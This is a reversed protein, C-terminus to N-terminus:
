ERGGTHILLKYPTNALLTGNAQIDLATDSSSGVFFKNIDTATEKNRASFVSVTPGIPYADPFTLIAIRTDAAPASGTTFEFIYFNNGGSLLNIAPGTGASAGFTCLSNNWLNGTNLFHRARVEGNVDLEEVPVDKNIGVLTVADNTLIIGHDATGGPTSSNPTLKLKDGDSNDIGISSTLVGSVTLQFIPDGGAAGGSANQFISNSTGAATNANSMVALMNGSINGSMRMFETAGSIAGSNLNLFANNAGTGAVTGTITVRDNVADVTYAADNALTNADSWYAIRNAVGTGDVYGLLTQAAAANLSSLDGDADAGVLLTAPDTVLDTIRVEGQVHFDRQPSNTKIGVLGAITTGTGTLGTGFILNGIVLQNSGTTSPFNISTGVLINRSGATTTQASQYGVVINRDGTSSYLASQGISINGFGSVNSLLAESGIAINRYGDVNLQMAVNGIAVNEFGTTNGNLTFYGLSVNKDGTSTSPQSLGGVAVNNSATSLKLAETGLAFNNNGSVNTKLAETGIAVNGQGGAILRGAHYGIAVNNIGTSFSLLASNGIGINKTATGTINGAGAMFWQDSSPKGYLAKSSAVYYASPQDIAIDGIVDVKYAPATNNIGVNGDNRASIIDTGDAKEVILGYTGSTSGAGQIFAGGASQFRYATNLETASGVVVRDTTSTLYTYVGADTWYSSTNTLVGAIISLGSLSLLGLDGDADAGVIATPTDTTLDSIRAEGEVHLKRAPTTTGIGVLSTTINNQTTAYIARGLMMVNSTNSGPDVAYGLFINDSGTNISGGANRGLISNRSGTTVSEGANVGMAINDSGTNVATLSTRGFASNSNGSTLATLSARGFGSNFSGSSGSAGLGANSGLFSNEDGTQYYGAQYGVGTNDVGTLNTRLVSTGFASNRTGTSNLYLSQYGFAAVAGSTNNEASSRGYATNNATTNYLLSHHGMATVGDITTAQSAARTGVITNYSGTTISEGSGAGILTNSTASPYSGALNLGAKGGIATNAYGTGSYNQGALYGVFLNYLTDTGSGSTAAGTEHLFRRYNQQLYYTKSNIDIGGIKRWSITHSDNGTVITNGTTAGGWNVVGTSVTTANGSSVSGGGGGGGLGTTDISIRYKQGISDLTVYIPADGVITVTDSRFIPATNISDSAYWLAYSGPTTGNCFTSDAMAQVTTFPTLSLEITLRENYPSAGHEWYEVLNGPKVRISYPQDIWKWPVSDRLVLLGNFSRSEIITTPCIDCSDGATRGDTVCKFSYFATKPSQSFWQSQQQGVCQFSLLLLM